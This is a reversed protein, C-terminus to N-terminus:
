LRIDFRSKVEEMSLPWNQSFGVGTFKEGFADVTSYHLLNDLETLSGIHAMQPGIYAAAATRGDDTLEIDDNHRITITGGDLRNGRGDSPTYDCKKIWKNVAGEFASREVSGNVYVLLHIHVTAPGDTAAYVYGYRVDASDLQPGSVSDRLDYRLKGLATSFADKAERLQEVRKPCESPSLRLSLLATTFDGDDNYQEVTRRDGEMLRRYRRKARKEANNTLGDAALTNEGSRKGLYRGNAEFASVPEGDNLYRDKINDANEAISDHLGYIDDDPDLPENGTDGDQPEPEPEEVAFWASDPVVSEARSRSLGDNIAQLVVAKRKVKDVKNHPFNACRRVTAGVDISASVTSSGGKSTVASM